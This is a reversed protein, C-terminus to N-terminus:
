DKFMVKGALLGGGIILGFQLPLSAPVIIGMALYLLDTTAVCFGITVLGKLYKM